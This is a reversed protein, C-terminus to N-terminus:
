EKLVDQEYSPHRLRHVTVLINLLRLSAIRILPEYSLKDDVALHQSDFEPWVTLPRVASILM